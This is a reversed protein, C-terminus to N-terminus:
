ALGVGIPFESLSTLIEPAAGLGSGRGEVGLPPSPFPASSEGRMQRNPSLSPSLSALLDRIGPRRWLYLTRTVAALPGRRPCGALGAGSSRQPIWRSHTIRKPLSVPSAGVVRTGLPQILTSTTSTDLSGAHGGPPAARCRQCHEAVTAHLVREIRAASPFLSPVSGGPYGADSETQPPSRSSDRQDRASARSRNSTERTSHEGHDARSVAPHLLGRCQRLRVTRQAQM